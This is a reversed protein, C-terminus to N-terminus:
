VNRWMFSRFGHVETVKVQHLHFHEFIVIKWKKKLLKHVGVTKLLLVKEM